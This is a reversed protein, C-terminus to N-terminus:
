VNIKEMKEAICIIYPSTLRNSPMKVGFRETLWVTNSIRCLVKYIGKKALNTINMEDLNQLNIVGFNVFLWYSCKAVSLGVKESAQKLDHPTLPVHKDFINRDFHKQIYGIIGVINPILTIIKGGEKAFSAIKAMVLQTDNFHEVVGNSFVVDFQEYLNIKPELFNDCIIKGRIGEKNLIEETLKCGIDSYDLGFVKFGYERAFYPLWISNACGIELIKMNRTPIRSFIDSLLIHLQIYLYQKLYRVLGTAKPDFAKRAYSNRWINSWYKEGAKDMQDPHNTSKKGTRSM